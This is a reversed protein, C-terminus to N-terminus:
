QRFAEALYRDREASVDFCRSAFKGVVHLARQIREERSPGHQNRLYSNVGERVLDAISRGEDQALRRLAEMQEVTLRVQTRIM